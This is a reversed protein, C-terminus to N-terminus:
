PYMNCWVNWEKRQQCNHVTSLPLHLHCVVIWFSKDPCSYNFLCFGFVTQCQHIEVSVISVANHMNSVFWYDLGLLVFFFLIPVWTECDDEVLLVSPALTPSLPNRLAGGSGSSGVNKWCFFFLQRVQAKSFFLLLPFVILCVCCCCFMPSNWWLHVCFWHVGFPM